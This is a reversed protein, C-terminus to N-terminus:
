ESVGKILENILENIKNIVKITSITEGYKILETNYTILESKLNELKQYNNM